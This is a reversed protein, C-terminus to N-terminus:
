AGSPAMIEALRRRRPGLRPKSPPFERSYYDFLVDVYLKVVIKENLGFLTLAIARLALYVSAEYLVSGPHKLLIFSVAGAFVGFLSAVAYKHNERAWLILRVIERYFIANVLSQYVFVSFHESRFDSLATLLAVATLSAYFITDCRRIVLERIESAASWFNKMTAGFAPCNCNFSWSDRASRSLVAFSLLHSSADRYLPGGCLGRTDKRRAAAPTPGAVVYPAAEFRRKRIALRVNPCASPSSASERRVRPMAASGGSRLSRISELLMSRASLSFGTGIIRSGRGLRFMRGRGERSIRALSAPTPSFFFGLGADLGKIGLADDGLTRANM